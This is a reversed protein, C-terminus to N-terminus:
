VSAFRRPMSVMAFYAVESPRACFVPMSRGSSAVPVMGEVAHFSCSEHMLRPVGALGDRDADALSGDGDSRDLEGAGEAADGGAADQMAGVDDEGVFDGGVSSSAM